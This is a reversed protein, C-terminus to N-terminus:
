ALLSLWPSMWFTFDGVSARPLFTTTEFLSLTTFSSKKGYSIISPDYDTIFRDDIKQEPLTFRPMLCHRKDRSPVNKTYFQVTKCSTKKYVLLRLM